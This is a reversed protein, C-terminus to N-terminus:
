KGNKKQYYTRFNGGLLHTIEHYISGIVPISVLGLTIPIVMSSVGLIQIGLGLNTEIGTFLLGIPIAMVIVIPAMRDYVKGPLNIAGAISKLQHLDMMMAEHQKQIYFGDQKVREIVKEFDIGNESCVQKFEAFKEKDGFYMNIILQDTQEKGLNSELKLVINNWERLIPLDAKYGLLGNIKAMMGVIKGKLGKKSRAAKESLEQTLIEYFPYAEGMLTGDETILEEFDAFDEDSMPINATVQYDIPQNQFESAFTPFAESFDGIVEKILKESLRWLPRSDAKEKNHNVQKVKTEEKETERKKKLKEQKNQEKEIRAKINEQVRKEMEERSEIVTPFFIRAVSKPINREGNDEGFFIKRIKIELDSPPIPEFEKVQSDPKNENM